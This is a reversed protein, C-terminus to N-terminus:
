YFKKGQKLKLTAMREVHAKGKLHEKMQDPSTFQKKCVKCFTLKQEISIASKHLETMKHQNLDDINQGRFQCVRCYFPLKEQSAPVYNKLMEKVTQELGTNKSKVPITTKKQEETDDAFVVKRKKSSTAQEQSKNDSKRKTCQPLPLYKSPLPLISEKILVSSFKLINGNKDREIEIDSVSLIDDDDTSIECELESIKDDLSNLKM